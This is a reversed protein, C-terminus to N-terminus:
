KKVFYLTFHSNFFFSCLFNALLLKGIYGLRNYSSWAVRKAKFNAEQAIHTWISPSQHINWDISKTFPNRFKFMNYFNYRSCDSIILIGNNTLFDYFKLFHNLYIKRAQNDRHLKSCAIEDLHNISNISIIIDFKHKSQFNHFSNNILLINSYGLSDQLKVFNTNMSNHGGDYQPELSVVEKSGSAAAYFSALGIGAGVDLVRRDNFNIGSFINSMKFSLRKSTSFHGLAAVRNFYRNRESKISKIEM